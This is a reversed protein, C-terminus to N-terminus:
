STGPSQTVIPASPAAAPTSTKHELVAVKSKLDAVANTVDVRIAAQDKAAEQKFTLGDRHALFAIVGVVILAIGLIVEIPTM